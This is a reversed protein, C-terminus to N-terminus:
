HVIVLLCGAPPRDPQLCGVVSFAVVCVVCSLGEGRVRHVVYVARSSGSRQLVPSVWLSDVSAVLSQSCVPCLFLVCSRQNGQPQSPVCVSFHSILGCADWVADCGCWVVMTISLGVVTFLVSWDGNDSGHVALGIACGVLLACLVGPRMWQCGM